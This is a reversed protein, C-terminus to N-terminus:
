LGIIYGPQGPRAGFSGTVEVEGEVPDRGREAVEGVMVADFTGRILTDTVVSFAINGSTARFSRYLGQRYVLQFGDGNEDDTSGSLTYRGDGPWRSGGYAIFMGGAFDDSTVLEIVPNVRQTVQDYVDGFQARGSLTDNVVGRLIVRYGEGEEQAVGSPSGAGAGNEIEDGCGAVHVILLLMSLLSAVPGIVRM